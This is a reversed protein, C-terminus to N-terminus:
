PPRPITSLRQLVSINIKLFFLEKAGNVMVGVGQPGKGEATTLTDIFGFTHMFSFTTAEEGAVLRFESRGTCAHGLAMHTDRDSLPIDYLFGTWGVQRTHHSAEM